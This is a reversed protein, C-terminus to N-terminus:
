NACIASVYQEVDDDWDDDESDDECFASVNHQVVDDDDGDWDDLYGNLKTNNACSYITSLIM